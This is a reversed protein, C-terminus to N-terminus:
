PIWKRGEPCSRKQELDYCKSGARWSTATWNGEPPHRIPGQVYQDVARSQFHVASAFPQLFLVARACASAPAFQMEGNVGGAAHDHSLRESLFFYSVWGLHPRQKILYLSVDFLHCCIPGIISRRSVLRHRLMARLDPDHDRGM